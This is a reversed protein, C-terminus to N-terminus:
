EKGTTMERLVIECAHKQSKNFKDDQFRWERGQGKCHRQHRGLSDLDYAIVFCKKRAHGLHMGYERWRHSLGALRSGWVWPSPHWGWLVASVARRHCGGSFATSPWWKETNSCNEHQGNYDWAGKHNQLHTKIGSQLLKNCVNWALHM